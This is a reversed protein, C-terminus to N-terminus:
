RPRIFTRRKKKKNVIIKKRERYLGSKEGIKKEQLTEAMTPIKKFGSEKSESEKNKVLSGKGIGLSTKEMLKKDIETWSPFLKERELSETPSIIQDLSPNHWKKKKTKKDVGDEATPESETPEEAM